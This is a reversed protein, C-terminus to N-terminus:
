CIKSCKLCEYWRTPYPGSDVQRQWVHCCREQILSEIQGVLKQQQEYKKFSSEINILTKKKLQELEFTSLDELNVNDIDMNNVSTQSESM